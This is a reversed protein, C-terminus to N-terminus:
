QLTRTQLRAPQSLFWVSKLLFPPGCATWHRSLSCNRPLSNTTLMVPCKETCKEMTGMGAPPQPPTTWWIIQRELDSRGEFLWGMDNKEIVKLLEYLFCTFLSLRWSKIEAELVLAIRWSVLNRTIEKVDLTCTLDCPARSLKSIVVVENGKSDLRERLVGIWEKSVFWVVGRWIALIEFCDRSSLDSVKHRSCVAIQFMRWKREWGWDSCAWSVKHPRWPIDSRRRPSEMLKLGKRYKIHMFFEWKAGLSPPTPPPTFSLLIVKLYLSSYYM